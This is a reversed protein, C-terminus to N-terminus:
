VRFLKSAFVYVGRASVFGVIIAFAMAVLLPSFIAFLLCKTMSGYAGVIGRSPYVFQLYIGLAFLPAIFTIWIFM